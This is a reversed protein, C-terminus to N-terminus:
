GLFSRDYSGTPITHPFRRFSEEGFAAKFVSGGCGYATQCASTLGLEDLMEGVLLTDEFSNELV